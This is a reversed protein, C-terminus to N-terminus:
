YPHRKHQWVTKIPHFSNFHFNLICFNIKEVQRGRSASDYRGLDTTRRRIQVVVFCNQSSFSFYLKNIFLIWPTWLGTTPIPIACMRDGKWCQRHLWANLARLVLMEGFTVWGTDRLKKGVIETWILNDRRLSKLFDWKTFKSILVYFLFLKRSINKCVAGGREQAKSIDASSFVINYCVRWIAFSALWSAHQSFNIFKWVWSSTCFLRM